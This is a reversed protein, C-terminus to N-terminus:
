AHAVASRRGLRYATPYDIRVMYLVAGPRKAKARKLAQLEDADLEYDGTEIDIAVFKGRDGRGIKPRIEEEYLAQGLRAVEEDSYQKM